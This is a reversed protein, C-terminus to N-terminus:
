LRGCSTHTYTPRVLQTEKTDTSSCVTLLSSHALQVACTANLQPQRCAEQVFSGFSLRELYYKLFMSGGDELYFIFAALEGFDQCGFSLGCATVVLFTLIVFTVKVFNYVNSVVFKKLVSASREL